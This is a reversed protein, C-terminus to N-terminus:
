TIARIMLDTTAFSSSFIPVSRAIWVPEVPSYTLRTAGPKLGLAVIPVIANQNTKRPARAIATESIHRLHQVAM